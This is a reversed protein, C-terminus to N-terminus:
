PITAGGRDTLLPPRSATGCTGPSLLSTAVVTDRAMGTSNGTISQTICYSKWLQRTSPADARAFHSGMERAWKALDRLSYHGTAYLEFCRRVLSAREPDTSIGRKGSGLTMNIYGIPAQSPWIGQEAKERMGKRTEESLNDSYNEAVAVRIKHLFKESSRSRRSHVRNEKVFHIEPDLKALALEDEGNRYLRDVKEVLVCRIATHKRLYQLMKGYETRGSKKATEVDVFEQVIIISKSEAYERLFKLQAPISFGENKQRDSSVRAYLVGLTVSDNTDSILTLPKRKM